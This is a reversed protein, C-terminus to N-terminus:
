WARVRRRRTTYKVQKAYAHRGQAASVANILKAVSGMAISAVFITSIPDAKVRAKLAEYQAIMKDYDSKDQDPM